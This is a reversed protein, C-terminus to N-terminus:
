MCTVHMDRAHWMCTMCTFHRVEERELSWTNQLDESTVLVGDESEDVGQMSRPLSVFAEYPNVGQMLDPILPPHTPPHTYGSSTLSRGILVQRYSDRFVNLYYRHASNYGDKVLGAIRREGYRTIDGQSLSLPLSLLSSLPPPPPPPPPSLLFSVFSSFHILDSEWHSCGSMYMCVYM